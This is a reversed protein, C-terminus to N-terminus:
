ARPPVASQAPRDSLYEVRGAGFESRTRCLGMRASHARRGAESRSSTRAASRCLAPENAKGTRKRPRSHRQRIPTAYPKRLFGLIGLKYRTAFFVPDQRASGRHEYHASRASKSRWGLLNDRYGRQSVVPQKKMGSPMSDATKVCQEWRKWGITRVQPSGAIANDALSTMFIILSLSTLNTSRRKVSVRPLSCCTDTGTLAKVMSLNSLPCKKSPEEIAPHFPMSAESMNSIGSGSEARISGNASSGTSLRVQSATSGESPLPYSRSGRVM